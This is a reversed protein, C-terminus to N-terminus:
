RGGSDRLVRLVGGAGRGARQRRCPKAPSSGRAYAKRSRSAACPVLEKACGSDVARGAAARGRAPWLERRLHDTQCARTRLTTLCFGEGGGLCFTICVVRPLPFRVPLLKVVKGTYWREFEVEVTDGLRPREQEQPGSESTQATSTKTASSPAGAKSVLRWAQGRNQVSVLCAKTRLLPAAGGGGAAPWALRLNLWAPRHTKTLVEGTLWTHGQDTRM